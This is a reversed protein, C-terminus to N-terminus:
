RVAGLGIRSNYQWALRECLGDLGGMIRQPDIGLYFLKKRFVNRMDGPIDFVHDDERLPEQWPTSPDPHVSFLGSQTVIRTTLSRPLLFGIETREFPGQGKTDVILRSQVSFAVIRANAAPDGRIAFYAAVLPNTTWDLLRTPLGHHQALALLDWLGLGRVDVFEGARREFIELISREHIESYDGTRGVNPVLEFGVDSLGRFVWRSSAHRDVWAMFERWRDARLKARNKLDPSLKAPGARRVM